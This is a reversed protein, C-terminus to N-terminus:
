RVLEKYLLSGYFERLQFVRDRVPPHSALVESLRSIRDEEVEKKNNYLKDVNIKSALSKGLALKALILIAKNLDRCAILGGRDCTYERRQSSFLMPVPITFGPFKVPVAWGYKVHSLEHGFIFALEDSDTADILGTNIVIIKKFAGIAYANIEPNQVVYVGPAKVGLRGAATEAIAHIDALNRDTAKVSYSIVHYYFRLRMYVRLLVFIVVAGVMMGAIFFSSAILRTIIFASGYTVFVYAMIALLLIIIVVPIILKKIYESGEGSVRFDIPRIDQQRTGDMETGQRGQDASM